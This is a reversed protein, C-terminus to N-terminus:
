PRLVACTPPLFTREPELACRSAHGATSHCARASRLQLRGAPAVAWAWCNQASADICAAGGVGARLEVATSQWLLAQMRGSCLLLIFTHNVCSGVMSHNGTLSEVFEGVLFAGM